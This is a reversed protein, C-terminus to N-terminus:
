SSALPGNVALRRAEFHNRAETLPLGTTARRHDIVMARRYDPVRRAASRHKCNIREM